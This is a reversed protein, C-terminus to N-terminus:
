GRKKPSAILLVDKRKFRVSRGIYHKELMGSRGYNEITSVSVKLLKAAEQKTLLENEDKPQEKAQGRENAKLCANVCDKIIQELESKDFGSLILNKM